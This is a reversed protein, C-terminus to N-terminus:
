MWDRTKETLAVHWCIKTDITETTDTAEDESCANFVRTTYCDNSYVVGKKGRLVHFVLEFVVSHVTDVRIKTTQAPETNGDFTCM